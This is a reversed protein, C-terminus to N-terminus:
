SFFDGPISVIGSGYFASDCINLQSGNFLNSFISDFQGNENKISKCDRFVGTANTIKIISLMNPLTNLITCGKFSEVTDFSGAATGIYVNQLFSQPIYELYKCGEFIRNIVIKVSNTPNDTSIYQSM